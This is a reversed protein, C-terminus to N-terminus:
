TSIYLMATPLIYTLQRVMLGALNFRTFRHNVSIYRNYAGTLRTRACPRGSVGSWRIAMLVLLMSVISRTWPIRASLGRYLHRSVSEGPKTDSRNKGFWSYGEEFGVGQYLKNEQVVLIKSM